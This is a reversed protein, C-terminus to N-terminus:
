LKEVKWILQNGDKIGYAVSKEDSTFHLDFVQDYAPQEKITTGNKDAVVVFRKGDKRARYVLFTGDSSILPRVVKDYAPGEKGNVVIFWNDGKRAAYAYLSSDKSYILHAAEDYLKGKVTSNFFAQHLYFQKDTILLVGVGKKDPRIVPFEPLLAKPLSEEKDNFILLRKGDKIACYSVSEGDDGVALKEIVDYLQGEHTLDPKAFPFDIVRLKKNAVQTTAIRTKASNSTFLLDGVSPKVSQAAFRLDSVILRMEKNSAAAEIYAISNSDSSFEPTTYSAITGSNPIGDVVLYWKDGEKAQYIVHKGNPSFIPTLVTEFTRDEKNDVVICWKAGILAAYAIRNGDPSLVVTGVNKYENGKIKNKVVSVMDGKQIIYSVGRGSESFLVEFPAQLSQPTSPDHSVPVPPPKEDVSITALLTTKDVVNLSSKNDSNPNNSIKNCGTVCFSLLLYFCLIVLSVFSMNKM